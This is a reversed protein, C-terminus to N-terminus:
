FIRPLMEHPIGIGNDQVDLVAEPGETSGKIWINGGEQIYKAANHILNV